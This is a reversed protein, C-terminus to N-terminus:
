TYFTKTIYLYYTAIQKGQHAESETLTASENESQKNELEQPTEYSWPLEIYSPIVVFGIRYFYPAHYNSM